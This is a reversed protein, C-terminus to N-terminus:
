SREAGLRGNTGSRGAARALARGPSPFLTRIAMVSFSPRSTMTYEGPPTDAGPTASEDATRKWCVPAVHATSVPGPQEPGHVWTSALWVVGTADGTLPPSRCNHTALPLGM